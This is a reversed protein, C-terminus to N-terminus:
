GIYIIGDEEYRGHREKSGCKRYIMACESKKDVILFVM